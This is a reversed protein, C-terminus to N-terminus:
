KSEVAVKQIECEQCKSIALIGNSKQEESLEIQTMNGGCEECQVEKSQSEEAVKRKYGGEEKKMWKEMDSRMIIAELFEEIMDKREESLEEVAKFLVVLNDQSIYDDEDFILADSTCKLAICLKKITDLEPKATGREIRSIQNLSMESIEALQGQTLGKKIRISKLNKGISMSESM